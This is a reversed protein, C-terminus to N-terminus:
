FTRELEMRSLTELPSEGKKMDYGCSTCGGKWSGSQEGVEDSFDINISQRKLSIFSLWKFWHWRWERRETYITAIREQIIGSKLKYKYPFTETKRRDHEEFKYKIWAGEPTLVEHRCHNWYWPMYIIKSKSKWYLFISRYQFDYESQISEYIDDHKWASNKWLNVFFRGWILNFIFSARNNESPCEYASCGIGVGLGFSPTFEGWNFYYTNGKKARLGIMKFFKDM